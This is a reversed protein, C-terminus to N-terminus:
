DMKLSAQTIVMKQIYYIYRCLYSNLNERNRRLYIRNLMSGNYWQAYKVSQSYAASLAKKLVVTVKLHACM